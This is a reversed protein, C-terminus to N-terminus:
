DYKVRFERYFIYVAILVDFGLCVAPYWSPVFDLTSGHLFIDWGVHLLWGFGLFWGSYRVGLFAFPLYILLGVFETLIWDNSSSFFGFVVYIVAAIALGIAYSIKEARYSKSRKAFWIFGIALIIGIVIEIFTQNM